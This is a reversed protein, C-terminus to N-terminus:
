FICIDAIESIMWSCEGEKLLLNYRNNVEDFFDQIAATDWINEDFQFIYVKTTAQDLVILKKMTKLKFHNHIQNNTSITLFIPLLFKLNTKSFTSLPTLPLPPTRFEKGIESNVECIIELIMESGM